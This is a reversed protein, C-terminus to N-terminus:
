KADRLQKQVYEEPSINIEDQIEGGFNVLLAHEVVLPHRGNDGTRAVYVNGQGIPDELRVWVGIVPIAPRIQSELAGIKNRIENLRENIEDLRHKRAYLDDAAGQISHYLTKPVVIKDRVAEESEAERKLLLYTVVIDDIDEAHPRGSYDWDFRPRSLKNM